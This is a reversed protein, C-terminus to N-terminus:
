DPRQHEPRKTRNGNRTQRRLNRSTNRGPKKHTRRPQLRSEQSREKVTRRDRTTTSHPRRSETPITRRVMRRRTTQPTPSGEQLAQISSGTEKRNSARPTKQRRTTENRQNNQLNRSVSQPQNPTTPRLMKGDPRPRPRHDLIGTRADM